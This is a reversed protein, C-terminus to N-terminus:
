DEARAAPFPASWADLANPRDHWRALAEADYLKM